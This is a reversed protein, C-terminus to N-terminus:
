DLFRGRLTNGCGTFVPVHLACIMVRLGRGAKQFQLQRNQSQGCSIGSRRREQVQRRQGLIDVCRRLLPLNRLPGAIMDTSAHHRM